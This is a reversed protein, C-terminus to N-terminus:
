DDVLEIEVFTRSEREVIEGCRISLPRRFMPGAYVFSHYEGNEGAPDVNGPLDRLMAYDIERGIFERGLRSDVCCLKARFGRAIFGQVLERTDRHWLPFEARMGVKALNQERYKALDELFLDGHAVTRIGRARLEALAAGVAAEYETNPCTGTMSADLRIKVIPLGLAEGQADLLSERVGHHSVRGHPDAVTTLLAEVRFRSDHRLADLALVSDKGGSFSLAIPEAEASPPTM